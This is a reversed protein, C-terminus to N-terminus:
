EFNRRMAQESFTDQVTDKLTFVIDVELNATSNYVPMPHFDHADNQSYLFQSPVKTYYPTPPERFAVDNDDIDGTDDEESVPRLDEESESDSAVFPYSPGHPNEHGTDGVDDEQEHSTRVSRITNEIDAWEPGWAPWQDGEPEVFPAAGCTAPIRGM